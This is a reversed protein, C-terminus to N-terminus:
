EDSKGDEVTPHASLDADKVPIRHGGRIIFAIRDDSATQKADKSAM